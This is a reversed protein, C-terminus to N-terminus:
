SLPALIRHLEVLAWANQELDFGDVSSRRQGSVGDVAGRAVIENIMEKEWEVSPLLNRKVLRSLAAVLGYAGWNSVSAIILRAVPTLAPNKPLTEVRPIHRALNGMGVENGGDGIGLSNKEGSFLYDIRATHATIDEGAMNLYKQNRNLGCREVSVLLSPKFDALIHGAFRWSSADDALPFDIVENKGVIDSALLPMTHKDTIYIVELGLTHLARGIALAGPPGDTEPAQARAIYFGTVIITPGQSHRGRELVFAAADHCFDGPLHNRLASIGRRDHSLIIEEVTM